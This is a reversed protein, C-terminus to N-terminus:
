EEHKGHLANNLCHNYVHQLINQINLRKLKGELIGIHDNATSIMEHLHQNENLLVDHTRHQPRIHKNLHSVNINLRQPAKKIVPSHLTKSPSLPGASFIFDAHIRAMMTLTVHYRTAPQTSSSAPANFPTPSTPLPPIAPLTLIWQPPNM